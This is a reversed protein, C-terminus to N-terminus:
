YPDGCVKWAGSEKLLEFTHKSKGSSRYTVSADISATETGNDNSYSGGWGLDHGTVPDKKVYTDFAEPGYQRQASSCLMDYAAQTRGSELATLFDGAAAKPAKTASNVIFYLGAAGGGCCLLFAGIASFIIIKWTKSM